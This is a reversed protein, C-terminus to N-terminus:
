NWAAIVDDVTTTTALLALTHTLVDAAYSEPIGVV